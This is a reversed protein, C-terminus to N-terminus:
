RLHFGDVLSSPGKSSILGVKTTSTTTGIHQNSKSTWPQVNFEQLSGLTAPAREEREKAATVVQDRFHGLLIAFVLYVIGLLLSLTAFIQNESNSTQYNNFAAFLIINQQSVVVLLGLFFGISFNSSLRHLIFTGVAGMVCLMFVTWSASLLLAYSYQYGQDANADNNNYRARPYNRLVIHRPPSIVAVLLLELLFCSSLLFLICSLLRSVIWKSLVLATVVLFGKLFISLMWAKDVSAKPDAECPQVLQLFIRHLTSPTSSENSTASATRGSTSHLNSNM